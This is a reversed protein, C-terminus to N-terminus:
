DYEVEGRLETVWLGRANLAMPKPNGNRDTIDLPHTCVLVGTAISQHKDFASVSNFVEGCAMCKSVGTGLTPTMHANSHRKQGRRSQQSANGPKAHSM